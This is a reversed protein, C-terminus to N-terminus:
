EVLPKWENLTLDYYKLACGATVTEDYWLVKKIEPPTTGSIIAAILGLNKIKAM